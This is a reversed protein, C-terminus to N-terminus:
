DNGLGGGYETFKRGRNAFHEVIAAGCGVATLNVVMCHEDM